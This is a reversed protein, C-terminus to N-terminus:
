AGLLRSRAQRREILQQCEACRLAAPNVNLRATEIPDGCEACEGLEGAAARHLVADIHALETTMRALDTLDRERQTEAAADDDTEEARRPLGAEAHEEQGDHHLRASLAAALEDRRQRLRVPLQALVADRPDAAGSEPVSM